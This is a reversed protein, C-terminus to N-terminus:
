PIPLGSALTLALALTHLLGVAALARRFSTSNPAPRLWTPALLATPSGGLLALLLELRDALPAAGLLARRRQLGLAALTALNAGALWSWFWPWHALHYAALTGALATLALLAVITWPALLRPQPQVHIARLGSASPAAQFRVRDGPRLPQGGEVTCAHVFVDERFRRSRIFGIGHRDDFSIVVGSPM